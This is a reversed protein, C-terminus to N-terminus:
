FVGDPPIAVGEWSCQKIRGRVPCVPKRSYWMVTDGYSCSFYLTHEKPEMSPQEVEKPSVEVSGDAM